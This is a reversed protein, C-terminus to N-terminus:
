TVTIRLEHNKVNANDIQPIRERLYCWAFLLRVLFDASVLDKGAMVPKM